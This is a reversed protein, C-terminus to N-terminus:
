LVDFYEKLSIGDIIKTAPILTKKVSIGASADGLPVEQDSRPPQKQLILSTSPDSGPLCQFPYLLM